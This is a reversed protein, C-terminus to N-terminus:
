CVNTQLSGTVINRGFSGGLVPVHESLAKSLPKLVAFGVIAGFLSAGFTWGTKLGLYINSAGVLAGCICGIFMARITIIRKCENPLDDFPVFPDAHIDESYGDSGALEVDHANPTKKENAHDDSSSASQTEVQQPKGHLFVNDKETLPPM